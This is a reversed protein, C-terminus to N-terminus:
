LDGRDLPVVPSLPRARGVRAKAPPAIDLIRRGAPLYTPGHHLRADDGHALEARQRATSPRPRGTWDPWGVAAANPVHAEHRRAPWYSGPATAAYPVGNDPAAPQLASRRLRDTRCPLAASRAVPGTLTIALCTPWPCCRRPEACLTLIPVAPDTQTSENM